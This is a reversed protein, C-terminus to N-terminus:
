KILSVHGILNHTKNSIDLVQAKWTYVDQKIPEFSGKSSGDWTNTIDRTDWVLHGWRDYIQMAFKQIGVGKAYFEDNNGDGNPTFVNPVYIVFAPKIELVKYLTDACGAENRVIQVIMPKEKTELNRISHIFDPTGFSTGDSVYYKFLNGDASSANTVTITPDDEDIEEPVVNFGAVPKKHVNIFGPNLLASRCGSDSRLELQIDYAGEGFCHAPNLITTGPSGDGFDWRTSFSGSAIYSLNKFNICLTPCGSKNDSSFVPIAKPNAVITKIKSDKCGFDTVVNLKVVYNGNSSFTYKPNAIDIDTQGDGNFDWLNTTVSGDSTSSLNIFTINDGVCVTSNTFNAIPNAHIIVNLLQISSCGNSSFNQLKVPYSGSVAFIKSPDHNLSDEWGNGFDWRWKIIQAPPGISSNNTFSTATNLCVPNTTFNSVPVQYVTVLSTIKASCSATNLVTLQVSYIGPVSYTHTGGQIQSGASGDGFNWSYATIQQLQGPLSLSGSYPTAAGRCVNSLTIAPSPIDYVTIAKSTSDICNNNTKAFLQVSYIGAASYTFVPNPLTSNTIGDSEFDWRFSTINSPPNVGTSNLFTVPSGLCPNIFSFNFNPLPYIALNATVTRTCGQNSTVGLTIPYNGANLYNHIPNLNTDFVGDGFNWTYNVVSGPQPVQAISFTGNFQAGVNLCTPSVNITPQPYPYITVTRTDTATCGFNSNAKLTVTYNGPGPFTHVPTVATSTGTNGFTWLQSVISNGPVAPVFGTNNGFSYTTTCADPPFFTMFPDPDPHIFVPATYTGTCNQNSVVSLSINYNGVNTYAHTPNQLSSTNSAGSTPDGFNWLYSTITGSVPTASANFIASECASPVTVTVTPYPFISIYQFATDTCGLSSTGVLSVTYNGPSPFSYNPNNVTTTNNGGFSWTYTIPGVGGSNNTFSFQPSCANISNTTFAVSPTPSISLVNSVTQVCSHNSTGTYTVTYNGPTAYIHVPTQLNSTGGDGFDWFFGVISGSAIATSTSPAFSTGNIDCLPNATFSIIPPPFIGLTQTATATCGQDSTVTLTISQPGTVTYTNTPNMVTSTVGGGLNWFASAISGAPVGFLSPVFSTNTFQVLTNICHSPPSFQVVPFPHIYINQTISDMCGRDTYAKLKVPYAKPVNPYTHSPSQLFTGSGDGFSYTYSSISGASISSTSLFTFQTSCGFPTIPTFSLVPNPFPTLTHLFSPGPCGPVLVTQCTYVGPTTVNICQNPNNVVGPGDWRYAGFGIPGCITTPTNPCTSDAVFTAFNTCIGDIYAYAFHGSPACDYVTFRLTVNQGINPTLDVAVSTWNKYLVANGNATLSSTQFGAINSGASVNYFTCPVQAGLTDVMEITFHPQQATPHGGDNLVVAYRYTFNANSPTVFFQQEVRDARGGTVSSGLRLSFSGGGPYVTPFGGFGDTGGAMITQDGNAITCCGIANFLPNYGNTRTWGTFNGSEWDINTCPGANIASSGYKKPSSPSPTEIWVLDKDEVHHHGDDRLALARCGDIFELRAADSLQKRDALANWYEYNFNSTDAIKRSGTQGFAIGFIQHLIIILYIKARM